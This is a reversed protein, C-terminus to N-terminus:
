TLVGNIRKRLYMRVGHDWTVIKLSVGEENAWTRLSDVAQFSIYNTRWKGHESLADMANEIIEADFEPGASHFM